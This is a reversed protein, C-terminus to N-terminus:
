WKWTRDGDYFGTVSIKRDRSSFLCSLRADTFPNKDVSTSRITIEAVGWKEITSSV